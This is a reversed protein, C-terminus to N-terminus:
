QHVKKISVLIDALHDDPSPNERRDLCAVEIDSGYETPRFRLWIRRPRILLSCLLGLLGITVAGLALPEAPTASIQLRAWPRLGDFRISGASNPLKVEQGPAITLTLAKGSRDEFATLKDKNLDYVSQPIGSGLGLDGSYPTLSLVPALADPFQSVPGTQRSYAYTPLFEGQFALQTPSADPVKVVGISKYTSDEPLFVTPGSYAVDGNGDRVTIIPAYGNGVLFISTRGITLPDNVQLNKTREPEGPGSRYTVRAEFKTPQGMAPGTSMFDATFDDLTLTFPDLQDASFLAGPAWNDFSQRDNTFTQGAVVIAAGRYGFLNGLAFAILVLTVSVHFVLNGAERLYGRQASVAVVGASDEVRVRFRRRRLARRAADGAAQPPLDVADTRSAPMKLLNRPGPPPPATAARWYVRFRPVICGLLSIMLLLYVASFWPTGYVHFLGLKRFTPALGPHGQQWRFVASPDVRDQPVLSGPISMVGLLLLLALATRMSTLQRWGWRALEVPSMSPPEAGPERPRSSLVDPALDTM